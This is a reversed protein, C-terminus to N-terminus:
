RGLWSGPWAATRLWCVLSERWVPGFAACPTGPASLLWGGALACAGM